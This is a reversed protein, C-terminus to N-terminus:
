VAPAEGKYMVVCKASHNSTRAIRWAQSREWYYGCPVLKRCSSIQTKWYAQLQGPVINHHWQPTNRLGGLSHITFLQSLCSLRSFIESTGGHSFMKRRRLRSNCPFAEEEQTVNSKSVYNSTPFLLPGVCECRCVCQTLHIWWAYIVCNSPLLQINKLCWWCWRICFFPGLSRIAM